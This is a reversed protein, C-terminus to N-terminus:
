WNGIDDEDGSKGNPGMSWIDYGDKNHIGPCAYQYPNKWPDLPLKGATLEVYPGTWRDAVAAPASVLAQLGQETTPYSGVQIKYTLLPAKMSDQVFIKATGISAQDLSGGLKSIMVAVLMGLIALAIMIELLTFASRRSRRPRGATLPTGAAPAAPEAPFLGAISPSPM